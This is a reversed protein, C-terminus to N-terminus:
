VHARGIQEDRAEITETFWNREAIGRKIWDKWKHVAIPEGWDQSWEVVFLKVM